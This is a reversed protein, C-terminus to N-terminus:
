TGEVININNNILNNNIREKDRNKNIDNKSKSPFNQSNKKNKGINDQNILGANKGKLNNVREYINTTKYNNKKNIDIEWYIMNKFHWM